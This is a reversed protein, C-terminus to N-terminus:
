FLFSFGLVFVHDLLFDSDWHGVSQLTTTGVSVFRLGGRLVASRFLGRFLAVFSLVLFRVVFSYSAGSLTSLSVRHFNGTPPNSHLGLVLQSVGRHRPGVKPTGQRKARPRNM